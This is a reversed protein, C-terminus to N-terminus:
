PKPARPRRERDAEKRYMSLRHAKERPRTEGDDRCKEDGRERACLLRLRAILRRLRRRRRRLLWRRLRRRLPFRRLTVRLLLAIRLLLTVRLLLPVRLLLTVRLLLPIRLLLTVRLAIRLLLAIWRLGAIRGAIRRVAVAVSRRGNRRS